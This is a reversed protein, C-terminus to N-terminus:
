YANIDVFEEKPKNSKPVARDEVTMAIADRVSSPDRTERLTELFNAIEQNTLREFDADPVKVQVVLIERASRRFEVDNNDKVPEVKNDM